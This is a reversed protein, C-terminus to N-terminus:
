VGLLDALPTRDGCALAVATRASLPGVLNGTGSYAGAAWVGPRAEEIVPLGDTSFGVSAAWRHSVDAKVKLHERLFQDLRDQVPATPTADITWEEEGGVDRFGGLAIRGDPLQQWYEYGYRWYVPRTFKVEPAPATALMQLRATRVRRVLEPLVLELGGDVAVIVRECRIMGERTRVHDGAIELAPSSEHLRAELSMAKRAMQRCRLLPQYVGDGPIMVGQGEPGQYWERPLDSQRLADFHAKVDELEEADSALRLSGVRRVAEPTEQEVRDLEAMTMRYIADAAARGHSKVVQHHFAHLGALLFGGNRGAAGSGVSGAEIGIVTKKRALLELVAALGSAGLGVVVADAWVEGRLPPLGLAAGESWVPLNPIVAPM